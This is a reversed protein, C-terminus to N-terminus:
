LNYKQTNKFLEFEYIINDSIKDLEINTCRYIRIYNFKELNFFDLVFNDFDLKVTAFFYIEIKRNLLIEIKCIINGGYTLKYATISNINSTDEEIMRVKLNYYKLFINSIKNVFNFISIKDLQIKKIDEIKDQTTSEYLKIYKM